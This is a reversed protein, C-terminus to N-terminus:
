FLQGVYVGHPMPLYPAKKHEKTQKPTKTKNKNKTQKSKNKKKKSKSINKKNTHKHYFPLLSFIFTTPYSPPPPSM